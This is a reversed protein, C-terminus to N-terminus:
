QVGQLMLNRNGTAAPATFKFSANSGSINFFTSIPYSWTPNIASATTQVKDAMAIGYAAGAAIQAQDRITFGSDIASYSETRNNGVVAVILENDQTPTISGFQGDQGGTTLSDTGNLQDLPSAASYKWAEVVFSPFCVTCTSTVTQSASISPGQVYCFRVEMNPSTYPTTCTYSNSQSDSITTTNGTIHTEAVVILDAGTMDIASSTLGNGDTSQALAHGILTYATFGHVPSLVPLLFGFLPVILIAALLAKRM